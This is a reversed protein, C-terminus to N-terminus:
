KDNTTYQISNAIGTLLFEENGHKLHRNNIIVGGANPGTIFHIKWGPETLRINCKVTNKKRTYDISLKTNGILLNKITAYPWSAPMQVHIFIEKKLADPKVGFFYQILPINIGTVNWAQVFMGYDPSVEYVTGPTAFSFSNVTKHMYKLATDPMGFMVSAQALGATAAPMVARNYTFVSDKLFRKEDVSVDDPREIGTIYAGFRNTFFSARLLMKKARATDTMGETMPQLGSPNYYVVYGKYPYTNNLVQEKLRLLKEGAWENRGKHVRTALADEIIKLAKDKPAIFDAYRNESEIWWDQNIREKLEFAKKAYISADTNDKFILAMESLIELFKLTNIQVDLMEENLGEIEAGGFGEIYGNSNTDHQQLWNWTKKAFLYNEKLFNINGTWRFIQWAAIIHLQSEEMRGKDYVLGNSSVEHIIRGSNDNVSDSLRKLMGFSNYFLQPHRTGTLAMFTSAQDNSFFWPYDPLGASMGNGLGPVDRILWDTSYKGWQYAEQLSKDPIVIEATREIQTYRLKKALFLDPLQLKTKSIVDTIEKIGKTSGSIYFRFQHTKGAKITCRLASVARIGQNHYGNEKLEKFQVGGDFGIGAFWKNGQDGFYIISNKRDVSTLSDKHDIIGKRESLWVPMLNIDTNLRIQLAQSQRSYNHISYEVVLVPLNDPVFQSQIIAVKKESIHYRFKTVFSYSIFSDCVKKYPEDTKDNLVEINFGDMLKIPHQWVGGMEGPVHFGVKPFSGAQSGICYLRNGATSYLYDSNEPKGYIHPLSASAESLSFNKKQATLPQTSMLALLFTILGSFLTIRISNRNPM